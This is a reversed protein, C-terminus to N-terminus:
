RHLSSKRTPSTWCACVWTYRVLQRTPASASDLVLTRQSSRKLDGLRPGLGWWGSRLAETVEDIEEQGCSPRVIPIM